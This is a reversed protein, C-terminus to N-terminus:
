KQIIRVEGSSLNKIEGSETRVVLNAKKDIDLATAPYPQPTEDQTKASHVQVGALPFVTIEKGLIISRRKYEALTDAYNENEYINLLQFILEAAIHNRSPCEPPTKSTLAGAIKQIEPPFGKPPPRVNIGIGTVIAEVTGTELNSVGESLIGCIKKENLFVDNVWKIGCDVNFLAAVTRCVAVAAGTTYRAPDTIGNKPCYVLSFYIGCGAPSSFPRGMRGRGATQRDAIYVARHLKKGQASLNGDADILTGADAILRRVYSNTSDIENFVTVTVNRDAMRETLLANIGASSLLDAAPDISYGKNAASIVPCGDTKLAAIAKWVATRSVGCLAALREGSVIQGPARQLEALIHEKTSSHTM